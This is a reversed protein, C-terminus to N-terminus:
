RNEKKTKNLVFFIGIVTVILLVAITEIIFNMEVPQSLEAM